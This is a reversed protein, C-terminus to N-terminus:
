LALLDIKGTPDLPTTWIPGLPDEVVDTQVAVLLQNSRKAEALVPLLENQRSLDDYHYRYGQVTFLVTFREDPYAQSLRVYCQIKKRITAIDETGRDVELFFVQDSGDLEFRRDFEVGFRKLYLHYEEDSWYKQWHSLRGTRQLAVFVDACDLEHSRNWDNIPRRKGPLSFLTPDQTKPGPHKALERDRVM